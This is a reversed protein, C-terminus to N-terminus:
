ERVNSRIYEQLLDKVALGEILEELLGRLELNSELTKQILQQYKHSLEIREKRETWWMYWGSIALLGLAGAQIWVNTVITEMESTTDETSSTIGIIGSFM